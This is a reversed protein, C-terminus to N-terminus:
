LWSYLETPTQGGGTIRIKAANLGLSEQVMAQIQPATDKNSLMAELKEIGVKAIIAHQFKQWIRPPACFWTPRSQLMDAPFTELSENFFVQGGCALLQMFVAREFIHSLPLFSLFRSDESTKYTSLMTQGARALSGHTHMVGKPLGTTGSTYIITCLADADPIINSELPENNEILTELRSFANDISVGPMSILKIDKPIVPAVWQWNDSPGVFMVKTESNELLYRTGEADMTTFAPVSVHGSMMIALDCLYWYVSNKSLIAIKSQKPLDLAKLASALRRASDGAQGWTMGSWQQNNPQHLFTDQPKRQEWHYFMELPTNYSEM